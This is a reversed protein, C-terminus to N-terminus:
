KVAPMKWEDFFEQPTMQELDRNVTTLMDAPSGLDAPTRVIVKGNDRRRVVLDLRGPQGPMLDDDLAPSAIKRRRTSPKPQEEIAAEYVSSAPEM